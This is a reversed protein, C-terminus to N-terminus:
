EEDEDEDEDEDDDEDDLEDDDDELEEENLNSVFGDIDSQRYRVLRGIKVYPLDYRGTTRWAALTQEAVGLLDAVQEPALLAERVM